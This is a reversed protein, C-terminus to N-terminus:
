GAIRCALEPRILKYGYLIDYQWVFLKNRRSVELRLVLGTKEDTMSIIQSGGVVRALANAGDLPRTAFAFADRHFALNVVHTAKLTVTAAADAIQKLGPSIYLAAIQFPTAPITYGGNAGTADAYGDVGDVGPLVVYTQDDDDPSNTITIVDGVLITENETDGTVAISVDGVAGASTITLADCDGATHTPVDDDVVFDMGYKRGIEGEIKVLASMTKESDAFAALALANAEADFDLVCRRSDRPCLQKNLIKRADVAAAVTTAFPTTAATGIYGYVELYESLIDQNVQHAIARVAEELQMPLYSESVIIKEMEDDRLHIPKNQIWKSLVIAVTEPTLGSGTSDGHGESPTVNEIGVAVPIPVDITAGKKAVDSKWDTNVLRPMICRERLVMLGRALILPILATIDNADLTM